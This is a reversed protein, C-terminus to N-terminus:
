TGSEAPGGPALRSIIELILGFEAAAIAAGFAWRAPSAVFAISAALSAMFAIDRSARLRALEGGAAITRRMSLVLAVLIGALLLIALPHFPSGAIQYLLSRGGVLIALAIISLFLVEAGRASM